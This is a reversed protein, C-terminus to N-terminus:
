RIRWIGVATALCAAGSSANWAFASNGQCLVGQDSNAVLAQSGGMAIATSLSGDDVSTIAVSDPGIGLATAIGGAGESAGVGGNVGVGVATAGRTGKAYGIGDLGYGTARGTADAETGCATEGQILTMKQDSVSSCQVTSAEVSGPAVTGAGIAVAIFVVAAGAVAAHNKM